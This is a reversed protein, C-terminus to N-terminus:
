IGYYIESEYNDNIYVEQEGDENYTVTTEGNSFDGPPEPPM